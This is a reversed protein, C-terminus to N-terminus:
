QDQWRHRESFPYMLNGTALEAPAIIIEVQTRSGDAPPQYQVLCARAQRWEGRHDFRVGGALTDFVASRVYTALGKKDIDGAHRVAQEIVQLQLYALFASDGCHAGSEDPSVHSASTGLARELPAPLATKAPAIHTCNVFGALAPGLAQRVTAHAFGVMVGGAMKVPVGCARVAEVLGMGDDLYSCMVLVDCGARAVAAVHARFDTSMMPYTAEHVIDLGFKAATAKAARIPDRAFGADASLFGVTRPRPEQASALEFFGETLAANRDYAAHVLSFHGDYAFSAPHGHERLSLLFCERHAVLPLAAVVAAAGQALLLGAGDEDMLRRYLGAINGVDSQTDHCVIEVRGGLLGGRANVDDCWTRCALQASRGVRAASGTLPLCHGIKLTSSPTRM